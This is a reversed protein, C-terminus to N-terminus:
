AWACYAVTVDFMLQMVLVVSIMCPVFVVIHTGHSVNGDLTLMCDDTWICLNATRLKMYAVDLKWCCIIVFKREFIRLM